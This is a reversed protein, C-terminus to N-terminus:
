IPVFTGSPGDLVHMDGDAIDVWLGHLALMGSDIAKSVFPFTQLNELSVIVTQQELARLQAARDPLDKVREFGPRLIDMWRGVFSERADLEPSQGSCM